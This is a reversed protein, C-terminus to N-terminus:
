LHFCYCMYHHQHLHSNHYLSLKFSTDCSVIQKVYHLMLKNNTSCLILIIFDCCLCLLFIFAIGDIINSPCLLPFSVHHFIYCLCEPMFRINSAEGWILLYLAIYILEIQQMDYDELYRLTLFFEYFLIFWLARTLIHSIFFFKYFIILPSQFTVHDYKM